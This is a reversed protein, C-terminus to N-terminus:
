GEYCGAAPLRRAFGRWDEAPAATEGTQGQRRLSVGGHRWLAVWADCGSLALMLTRQRLRHMLWLNLTTLSFIVCSALVALGWIWGGLLWASATCCVTLVLPLGNDRRDFTPSGPRNFHRLDLGIAIEGERNAYWIRKYLEIDDAENM